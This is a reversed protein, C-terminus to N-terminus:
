FINTIIGKNNAVTAAVGISQLIRAIILGYLTKSMVCFLSVLTFIIIRCKFIKSKGKIAKLRGFTIGSIIILYSTIIWQISEMTVNLKELIVLLAVNIISNDLCTM